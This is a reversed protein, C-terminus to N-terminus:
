KVMFRVQANSVTIFDPEDMADSDFSLEIEIPIAANGEASRCQNSDLPWKGIHSMGSSVIETMRAAVSQRKVAIGDTPTLRNVARRGLPGDAGKPDQEIVGDDLVCHARKTDIHFARKEQSLSGLDSMSRGDSAANNAPPM